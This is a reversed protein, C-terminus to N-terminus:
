FNNNYLLIIYHSIHINTKIQKSNNNNNKKVYFKLQYDQIYVYM